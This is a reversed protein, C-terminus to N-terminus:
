SCSMVPSPACAVLPRTLAQRITTDMCRAHPATLMCWLRPRLQPRCSRVGPSECCTWCCGEPDLAPMWMWLESSAQVAAALELCPPEGAYSQRVPCAAVAVWACAQWCGSEERGVAQGAWRAAGEPRRTHPLAFFGLRLALTVAARHRLHFRPALTPVLLQLSGYALALFVLLVDAAGTAKRLQSLQVGSHMALSALGLRRDIRCLHLAQERTLPAAPQAAPVRSGPGSGSPGSSGTHQLEVIDGTRFPM